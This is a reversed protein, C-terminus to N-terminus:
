GGLARRGATFAGEIFDGLGSDVHPLQLIKSATAVAGVFGDTHWRGPAPLPPLADAHLYPWPNIYFYPEGYSDDGPSMGTGIGRAQEADGAELSVYTAIDFHHPWCWIPSPGPVIDRHRDVFSHLQHNALDYWRSLVQLAAELGDTDFHEIRAVAPPMKFPHKVSSAAKLGREVLMEDLWTICAAEPQDELGITAVTEGGRVIWMALPSLTVRILVPGDSTAMPNTQFGGHAAEWQMATHSYDPREEVNALAALAAIQVANHAMDRADVLTTPAVTDLEATQSM